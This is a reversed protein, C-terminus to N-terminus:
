PSKLLAALGFALFMSALVARLIIPLWLAGFDDLRVTEVPAEPMYLVKAREGRNYSILGGAPFSIKEGSPLEFEVQPHASGANLAIVVAETRIAKLIFRYTGWVSAIVTLWLIGGIVLGFIGQGRTLPRM